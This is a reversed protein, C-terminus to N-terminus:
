YLCLLGLREAPVQLPNLFLASVAHGLKLCILFGPLRAVKRMVRCRQQRQQLLCVRQVDHAIPVPLEPYVPQSLTKRALTGERRPRDFNEKVSNCGDSLNLEIVVM